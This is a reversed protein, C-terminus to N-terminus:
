NGSTGGNEISPRIFATGLSDSDCFNSIAVKRNATIKAIAWSMFIELVSPSFLGRKKGDDM